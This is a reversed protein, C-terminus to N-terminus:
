SEVQFSSKDVRLEFPVKLEELSYWNNDMPVTDFYKRFDVLSCHLNIKNNPCEEMIIKLMVHRDMTSDYSRFGVEGKFIKGHSELLININTELIIKYLKVLIHSIM